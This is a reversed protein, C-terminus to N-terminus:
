ASLRAKLSTKHTHSNYSLKLEDISKGKSGLQKYDQPSFYWSKKKSAWRAVNLGDIKINKIIEKQEYMSGNVNDTLWIFSGIFNIDIGQLDEFKCILDYFKDANFNADTKFGTNFKLTNSLQKFEKHMQLFDNNSDYGSTDPNLKICLKRFANKLSNLDKCDNFYNM